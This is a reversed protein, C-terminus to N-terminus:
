LARLPLPQMFTRRTTVPWVAAPLAVTAPSESTSAIVSSRIGPVSNQRSHPASSAGVNGLAPDGGVAGAVEGRNSTKSEAEKGECGVRHGKRLIEVHLEGKNFDLVLQGAQGSMQLGLVRSHVRGVGDIELVHNRTLDPELQVIPLRGVIRM